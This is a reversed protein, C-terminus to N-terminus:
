KAQRQGAPQCMCPSTIDTDARAWARRFRAEVEDAEDAAGRERLCRALGVLSWGNDPFRRLDQRLLPEAEDHRGAALLTAALPHRTPVMWEPPEIYGLRDEVEVARRLAAIAQDTAGRRFALEGELTHLPIQLVTVAPNLSVPRAPDIRAVLEVLADHEAQAEDLRGLAALASGRAYRRVANSFPLDAPYAPVRLVEDWRGFRVLVHMPASVLSDLFPGAEGALAEPPITRAAGRAAALAERSRGQMMEAFALFHFDHAMYVQFFDDPPTAARQREDVMLARRNAETAADYRGLRIDIHAPMHLLHSQGPVLDRLRDAAPLADEPHDSGELAHVYFHNAGPHDPAQALVRELTAELEPQDHKPRGEPTWLDWPHLNMLSEAFLAGVDPDHPHERWLARMAAAYARDLPARDQPEIAPHRLTLAQILGREVTGARDAANLARQLATRAAATRAPSMFPRNYHPGNAYAIGWWAMACDPDAETAAEFSRIAAGHNFGYLQVLGRDFCRQAEASTTTVPRAYAGPEAVAVGGARAADGGGSTRLARPESTCAALSLSAALSAALAAPAVRTM